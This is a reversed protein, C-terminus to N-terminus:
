RRIRRRSGLNNPRGDAESRPIHRDQRGSAFHRRSACVGCRSFQSSLPAEALLDQARSGRKRSQHSHGWPQTRNVCSPPSSAIRSTKPTASKGDLRTSAVILDSCLKRRIRISNAIWLNVALTNAPLRTLLCISGGQCSLSRGSAPRKRPCRYQAGSAVQARERGMSRAGTAEKWRKQKPRREQGNFSFDRSDEQDSFSRQWRLRSCQLGPNRPAAFNV